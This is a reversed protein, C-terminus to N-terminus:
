KKIIMSKFDKPIKSFVTPKNSVLIMDEIRIGFKKPIYIGPEITVVDNKKVIDGSSSKFHPREHILKGIGHGGHYHYRGYGALNIIHRAAFDVHDAFKESKLKKIAALQASLVINYIKEQERNPTGIFLTRTFDSCYGSIKFGYDLMLFNNRGIKKDTPVHHIDASGPGFAVIPSFALGQAGFKKALKKIQQALQIETLNNKQRLMLVVEYFIKDIIESGKTISKIKQNM